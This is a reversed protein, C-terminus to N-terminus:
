IYAEKIRAWYNLLNPYAKLLTPHPSEIGEALMQGVSAALACDYRTM